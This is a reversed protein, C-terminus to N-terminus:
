HEELVHTSKICQKLGFFDNNNFFHKEMSTNKIFHFLLRYCVESKKKESYITYKFKVCGSKFFTQM